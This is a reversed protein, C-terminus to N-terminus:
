LRKFKSNRPTKVERIYTTLLKRWVKSPDTKLKPLDTPDYQSGPLGLTGKDKYGVGIRRAEPSKKFVKTEIACSIKLAPKKIPIDVGLGRIENAIAEALDFGFIKGVSRMKMRLINESVAVSTSQENILMLINFTHQLLPDYKTTRDILDFLLLWHFLRPEGFLCDWLIEAFERRGNNFTRIRIVRQTRGRRPEIPLETVGPISLRAESLSKGSFMLGHISCYDGLEEFSKFVKM